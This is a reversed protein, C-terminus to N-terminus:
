ENGPRFGPDGSDAKQFYINDLYIRCGDPNGAKTFIVCFGGVVNELDKQNGLPITYRKWDKSLEIPGSSVPIQISDPYKGRNVGGVKFECVERGTAGRAWFVVEAKDEPLLNLQESINIGPKEGWSGYALWYTGAWPVKGSFSVEVCTSGEYPNISYSPNVAIENGDPMYATGSWTQSVYSQREDYVYFRGPFEASDPTTVMALASSRLDAFVPANMGPLVNVESQWLVDSFRQFRLSHRGPHVNTLSYREEISMVRGLFLDDLYIAAGIQNALIQLSGLPKGPQSILPKEPPQAVSVTWGLFDDAALMQPNQSKKTYSSVNSSVYRYAEQLSIVGDGSDDAAGSLAQILFHTFVGGRFRFSELSKENAKSSALIALRNRDTEFLDQGYEYEYRWPQQWANNSHLRDERDTRFHRTKDGQAHPSVNLAETIGKDDEGQVLAYGSEDMSRAGSYCADSILIIRRSDVFRLLSMVEDYGISTGALDQPDVDYSLFYWQRSDKEDNTGHGSLYVIVTDEPSAKKLFGGLAYRINGSTADKDVLLAIQNQKYGLSGRLYHYFTKADTSAYGLDDIMGPQKHESVGIVVAWKNQSLFDQIATGSPLAKPVLIDDVFQQNYVLQNVKQKTESLRYGQYGLIGFLGAFMFCFVLLIASQHIRVLNPIPPLQPIRINDALSHIFKIMMVIIWNVVGRRLTVFWARGSVPNELLRLNEKMFEYKRECIRCKSLHADITLRSVEDLAEDHYAALDEESVHRLTAERKIDEKNNKEAM